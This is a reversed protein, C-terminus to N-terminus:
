QNNIPGIYKKAVVFNDIYATQETVSRAMGGHYINMWVEEIKLIRSTRFQLNMKEFVEHGDLWVRLVGDSEGPTNLKVYQEICYWQNNKLLAGGSKNWTWASGYSGHQDLHYVYSGMPTVKESGQRITKLFLGRTSWGNEGNPKRGGWGATNYTGAFGPMKGSSITQDWNDGLRLYYRFYAAEPESFGNSAFKYKQNLAVRRGEPLNVLLAKGSLPQFYNVEDQSVRAGMKGGDTWDKQWDREEFGNAYFVEPNKDIGEDNPYASSIGQLQESSEFSSTPAPAVQFVGIELLKPSYIKQVTLELYASNVIESRGLKSLDFNILAHGSRGIKILGQTGLASATSTALYTDANSTFTYSSLNTKIILQPRSAQQTSERSHFNVTSGGRLGRLFFGENKYGSSAWSNVMSTVNFRVKDNAPQKVIAATAYPADGWNKGKVDKWDGLRKDWPLKAPANYYDRTASRDDWKAARVDATLIVLLITIVTHIVNKNIM